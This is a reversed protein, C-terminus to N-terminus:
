SESNYMYDDPNQLDRRLYKAANWICFEEHFNSVFNSCYGAIEVSHIKEIYPAFYDRIFANIEHDNEYESYRNYYQLAYYSDVTTDDLNIINIFKKNTHFYAIIIANIIIQALDEPVTHNNKAFRMLTLLNECGYDDNGFYLLPLRRMVKVATVCNGSLCAWIKAKQGSQVSYVRATDVSGYWSSMVTKSLSPDESAAAAFIDDDFKQNRVSNIFENSLEKDNNINYDYYDGGIPLATNESYLIANGSYLSAGPKIANIYLKGDDTEVVELDACPLTFLNHPDSCSM